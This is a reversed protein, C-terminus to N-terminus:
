QGFMEKPNFNLTTDRWREYKDIPLRYPQCRIVARIASETAIKEFTNRYVSKGVVKPAGQVTGDKNLAIRLSVILEEAKIGGTPPSWCKQVQQKFADVESLSLPLSTDAARNSSNAM